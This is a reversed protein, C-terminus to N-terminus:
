GPNFSRTFRHRARPHNRMPLIAAVPMPSPHIQNPRPSINSAYPPGYRKEAMPAAPDAATRPMKTNLASFLSLWRGLGQWISGCQQDFTSGGSLNENGDPWVIVANEM